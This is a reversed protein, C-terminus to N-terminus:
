VNTTVSHPGTAPLQVSAMSSDRAIKSREEHHPPLVSETSVPKPDANSAPTPQSHDHGAPISSASPDSTDVTMVTEGSSPAATYTPLNHEENATTSVCDSLDRKESHARFRSLRCGKLDTRICKDVYHSPQQSHKRSGRSKRHVNDVGGAALHRTQPQFALDAMHYCELAHSDAVDVDVLGFHQSFRITLVPVFRISIESPYMQQTRVAVYGIKCHVFQKVDSSAVKANIKQYFSIM